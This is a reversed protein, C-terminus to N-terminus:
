HPGVTFNRFRRIIVRLSEAEAQSAGILVNLMHDSELEDGLHEFIVENPPQAREIMVSLFPDPHGGPIQLDPRDLFGQVLKQITSGAVSLVIVDLDDNRYHVQPSRYPLFETVNPLRGAGALLLSPTNKSQGGTYTLKVQYTAYESPSAAVIAQFPTSSDSLVDKHSAALFVVLGLLIAPTRLPSTDPSM